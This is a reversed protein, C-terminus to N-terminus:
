LVELKSVKEGSLMKFRYRSSAQNDLVRSIEESYESPTFLLITQKGSSVKELVSGFNERHPGSIRAVPTDILIPSDFGSVEHLALTFSLALLEREGASVSGLCEYGMSHILSINYDASINIAKFTARKWALDFFLEKTKTEIRQRTERMIDQKTKRVVDLAAICFDRQKRIEEAEKEKRVEADFQDELEVVRETVNKEENYLVGLDQLTRNRTEEFKKRERHWEKIREEDYGAIERDIKVLRREINEIDEQLARVDETALRTDTELEEVKEVLQRLPSEIRVLRRAVESSLGIRELLAEVHRAAAEDLGRGCIDCANEALIRELLSRDITPPIEGKSEKQEIVQIAEKIAPHLMAGTGRELLLLRKERLKEDRHKKKKDRESKLRKRENELGEVDPLGSLKDGYEEIKGKAVAVQGEAEQIREKIEDRKRKEEELNERASEIDPNLRGAEKELSSIIDNMKREIENELLDLQSIKFVAHRINQATAERFYQDLREGDFFFFERIKEPVFRDVYSKGEEGSLIETNGREDITHAELTMGQHAPEQGDYVRYSAVRRFLVSTNTNTEAYIEVIVEQQKGDNTEQIAELNLIPLQHSDKSLHPEDGYLCWNIANLVNTKGTGNEGVLIHLDNDHGKHFSIEEEKFQRYNRLILKEIRM